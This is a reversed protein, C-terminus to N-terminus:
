NVSPRDQQELNRAWMLAGNILTRFGANANELDTGVIERAVAEMWTINKFWGANKTRAARGLIQRTETSFSGCRAEMQITHLNHTNQSLSKIHQNILNESHLDIARDILRGVGDETLSWFLEDELARGERWSFVAGGSRTFSTEIAKTPRKDDDRIVASRYGLRRFANARKFPRDADGGGCDVLATGRAIISDHGKATFYQDLGRLFGVESAGECVIISAALFAEPYLRITGQIDDDTGVPVVKHIATPRIVFLQDGSLERLAIPSHTAMFVQLPPPEEKAGLSDLLRIIRHPELGHEIEDILVISSQEAAKRQLGCILLRTSGVGLSRLPIGETDHLAITGGTLSVSHADLMAKINEGISLGLEKATASVVGLTESVQGQAEDGFTSRASRSAAALAASADAREASLRNLVSGRNWGLHYDAVVGIRAPSLRARDSWRLDRDQDQARARESVLSWTPNLDGTVTLNVTLVTEAGKEPEDEINGSEADFGRVYMGYSELSMLVDDLEGIAVSISISQEVELRHFDTDSFPVNRRMGLCFDIADLVTSKGSDGPGILCNIGESPYWELSRIGRFNEIEVKRIRAM